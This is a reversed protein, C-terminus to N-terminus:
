NAWKPFPNCALFLILLLPHCCLLMSNAVKCCEQIGNVQNFSSSKMGASGGAPAPHAEPITVTALFFMSALFFWHQKFYIFNANSFALMTYWKGSIM